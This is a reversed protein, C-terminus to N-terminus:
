EAFVGILEAEGVRTMRVRALSGPTLGRVGLRLYNGSIAFTVGAKRKEGVVVLEAGVFRKAFKLRNEQDTELLSRVRKKVLSADLEGLEWARTGPRRSYSFIHAYAFPFDRLFSLTDQFDPDAEAPFGAIIDTGIALSPMASLARFAKDEYERLTYPRGMESLVRDSGSQLPLHLHDAVRWGAGSMIEILEPNLYQPEISSLRFRVGSLREILQGLLWALNRSGERWAGTQTGTIVIERFGASALNEAEAIIEWFPRSVSPGRMRPVVCYACSFDCGLQVRLYARAR